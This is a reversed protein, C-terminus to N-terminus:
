EQALKAAKNLNKPTLRLTKINKATPVLTTKIKKPHEIAITPAAQKNQHIKAEAM